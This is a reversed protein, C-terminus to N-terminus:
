APHAGVGSRKTAVRLAHGQYTVVRAGGEDVEYQERRVGFTLLLQYVFQNSRQGDLFFYFYYDNCKFRM